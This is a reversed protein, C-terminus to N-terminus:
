GARNCRAQCHPRRVIKAIDIRDVPRHGLMLADPDQEIAPRPRHEAQRAGAGLRRRQPNIELAEFRVGRLVPKVRLLRKNPDNGCGLLKCVNAFM